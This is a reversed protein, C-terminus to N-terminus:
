PRLAKGYGRRRHVLLALLGMGFMLAPSPEPVPSVTFLFNVSSADMEFANGSTALLDDTM